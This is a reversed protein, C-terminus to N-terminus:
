KLSNENNKAWFVCKAKFLGEKKQNKMILCSGPSIYPERLGSIHFNKFICLFLSNNRTNKHKCLTTSVKSSINKTIKILKYCKLLIKKSIKGMKAGKLLHNKAYIQDTDEGVHHYIWRLTPARSSAGELGQAM